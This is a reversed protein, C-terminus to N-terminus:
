KQLFKTEMSKSSFQNTTKKDSSYSDTTIMEEKGHINIHNTRMLSDISGINASVSIEKSVEKTNIVKPLFNDELLTVIEEEIGFSKFLDPSFHNFLNLPFIRSVYNRAAVILNVKFDRTFYKFAAIASELVPSNWNWALGFLM